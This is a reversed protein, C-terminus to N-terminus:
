IPHKVLRGHEDVVTFGHDEWHKALVANDHPDLGCLCTPWVGPTFWSAPNPGHEDV